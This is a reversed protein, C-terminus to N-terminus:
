SGRVPVSVLAQLKFPSLGFSGGKVNSLHQASSAPPVPPVQTGSPASEGPCCDLRLMSVHGSSVQRQAGFAFTALGSAFNGGQTVLKKQSASPPPHQAPAHRGAQKM